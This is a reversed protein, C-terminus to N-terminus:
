FHNGLMSKLQAYANNLDNEKYYEAYDAASISVFDLPSLGRGTERAQVISLLVIRHEVIGLRYSAEILRNSKVVLESM